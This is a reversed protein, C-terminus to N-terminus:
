VRSHLPVPGGLREPSARHLGRPRRKSSVIVSLSPGDAARSSVRGNMSLFRCSMPLVPDAAESHANPVRRRLPPAEGRSRPRLRDRGSPWQPHSLAAGDRRPFPPRGIRVPAPSPVRAGRPRHMASGPRRRLPVPRRGARLRGEPGRGPRPTLFAADTAASLGKRPAKTRGFRRAELRELKETVAADIIAALDGDPVSSRMLARLRDLKDRLEASATFQVKYRGPALPEIIEPPAARGPGLQARSGQVADPRLESRPFDVGDPRLESEVAPASGPLPGTSPDLTAPGASTRPNVLTAPTALTVPTAATVSPRDPCGGCCRRPMRGPHSRRSLSRSRASRGTSRVSWSGTGTEPTLHPALKAIATLHLRGSALMTLLVPHERSARAAAIRLYAEAESLHLTETCYAFMSPSAERAYLRRADVEGIHAVLDAEVRRSQRLIEVLRRLLDDDPILELSRTHRMRVIYAATERGGPLARPAVCRVAIGNRLRPFSHAARPRAGAAYRGDARGM